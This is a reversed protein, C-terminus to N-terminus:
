TLVVDVSLTVFIASTSSAAAIKSGSTLKRGGEVYTLDCDAFGDTRAIEALIRSDPMDCGLAWSECLARVKSQLAEGTLSEAFGAKGYVTGQITAPQVASSVAEVKVGIPRRLECITNATALAGATAFGAPSACVITVATDTPGCDLNEVVSVRNLETVGSLVWYAYAERPQTKSITAWKCNCRYALAEDSEVEVGAQTIWSTDSAVSMTVGVLSSVVSLRSGAANGVTGHATARIAVSASAGNNISVASTNAFTVSGNTLVIDGVGYSVTGGSANYLSVAGETPLSPKRDEGFLQKAAFTLADGKATQVFGMSAIAVNREALSRLAAVDVELLGRAAGTEQWSTVPFDRSALVALGDSRVADLTPTSLLDSLQM